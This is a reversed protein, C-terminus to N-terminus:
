LYEGSILKELGELLRPFKEKIKAPIEGDLIEFRILRDVIHNSIKKRYEISNDYLSLLINGNEVEQMLVHYLNDVKYENVVPVPEKSVLEPPWGTADKIFTTDEVQYVSCKKNEYVNKFANEYCECVVAKGDAFDIFLDFDDKPAGFLLAICIDATAYVFPTGHTSVHPVLVSLNETESVHYLM